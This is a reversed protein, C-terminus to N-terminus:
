GWIPYKETFYEQMQAWIEVDRQDNKTHKLPFISGVGNPAFDRNLWKMLITEVQYDDYAADSYYDLGLNELMEWFFDSPGDVYGNVYEDYARMTLGVLMELVSCPRHGYTKSGRLFIGDAARNRDFETSFIFEVHHLKEM